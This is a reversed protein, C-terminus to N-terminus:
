RFFAFRGKSGEVYDREPEVSIWRRGLEEAISGTLNSGAFPDLVLDGKNTLMKIFFEALGPQMPAPHLKLGRDRCYRRYDGHALTNPLELVNPPIAGGNNKLFSTAGVVHGSPREGSHYKKTRLLRKMDPKYPTLVRKNSARPTDSPSMWWVHTFSDKVRIRKVSVWQAPTPLRTPNHCVFQQCLNFEGAEHFALLTKLPLTSM